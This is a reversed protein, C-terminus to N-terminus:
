TSHKTYLKLLKHVDKHGKKEAITIATEGRYDRKNVRAKGTSLLLEVVNGHGQETALMLATLSREDELNVDIEDVSLLLKVADRNGDRAALMLATMGATTKANVKVKDMRLLLEVVDNHGSETALMLATRRRHDCAGVDVDKLTSLRQVVNVHGKLAALLFATRGEVDRADLYVKRTSLLLEVMVMLGKMAATQFPTSGTCDHVNVNVKDTKLLMEAIISYGQTVAVMLPPQGNKDSSNVDVNNDALLIHLVERNGSLAALWLSTRGINDTKNVDARGTDLLLKVVNGHGSQVAAMLPTYGNYDGLGVAVKRLGLLVKVIGIHGMSAALTLPTYSHGRPPTRNLDVATVTIALAFVHPSGLKILCEILGQGRPFNFDRSLLSNGHEDLYYLSLDKSVHSIPGTNTQLAKVFAFIAEGSRTAMAALFPVGYREQELEFCSRISPSISILNALNREALIYLISMSDTHRRIKHKELINDLHIWRIRPFSLMFSTQMLGAGQAIDAHYLVYPVAYDLFPFADIMPKRVELDRAKSIGLRYDQINLPGLSLYNLCCQKLREHSHGEFDYEPNPWINSLGNEKLLFDRVSEHIFQAKQAKSKTTEVLGKSCDLVFRRIVDMTLEEPDWKTIAGPEVGSLIAFYLQEPSMPQKAFLVWQICLLLEDKNRSDRTLVDRFLEHLDAPIESLRKQLAHMRGRDFEQNLIEVVLVVWMFIGSAKAQLDTRIQQAVKGKGIRLEGELYNTIDQTHGEQGELV